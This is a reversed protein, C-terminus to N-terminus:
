DMKPWVVFLDRKCPQPTFFHVIYSVPLDGFLLMEGIESTWRPVDMRIDNFISRIRSEGLSWHCWSVPHHHSHCQTFGLKKKKGRAKMDERASSFADQVDPKVKERRNQLWFCLSLATESLCRFSHFPLCMDVQEGVNKGIYKRHKQQGFWRLGLNTALVGADHSDGSIPFGLASHDRFNPSTFFPSM